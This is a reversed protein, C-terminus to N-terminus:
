FAGRLHEVSPGGGPTRLVSIVDFRLEDWSREQQALWRLALERIKRQKAYGVAQAPSGFRPSSRTKVECFVVTRGAAAIIDLEGAGCRWNRELILLGSACLARAAVQEGYRGIADKARM